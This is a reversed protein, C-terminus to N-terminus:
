ALLQFRPPQPRGSCNSLLPCLGPAPPWPASRVQIGAQGIHISIVERMNAPTSPDLSLQPCSFVRVLVRKGTPNISFGVCNSFQKGGVVPGLGVM